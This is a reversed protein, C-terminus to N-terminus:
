YAPAVPETELLPAAALATMHERLETVEEATLFAAISDHFTRCLSEPLGLSILDDDQLPTGDAGYIVVEVMSYDRLNLLHERPQCYHRQSGQVSMSYAGFSEHPFLGDSSRIRHPMQPDMIM